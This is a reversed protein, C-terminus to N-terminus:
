HNYPAENLKYIYLYSKENSNDKFHFLYTISYKIFSFIAVLTSVITINMM